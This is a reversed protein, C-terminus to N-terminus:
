DEEEEVGHTDKENRAFSIMIPPMTRSYSGDSNGFMMPPDMKGDLHIIQFDFKNPKTKSMDIDKGKLDNNNMIFHNKDIDEGKLNNNNM